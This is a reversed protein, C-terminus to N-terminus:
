RPPARSLPLRQSPSSFAALRQAQVRLTLVAEPPQDPEPLRSNNLLCALGLLRESQQLASGMSLTWADEHLDHDATLWPQDHNHVTLQLEPLHWGFQSPPHGVHAHVLPAFVQLGVLLLVLFYRLTAVM